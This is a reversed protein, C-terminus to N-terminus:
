RGIRDTDDATAGSGDSGGADVTGGEEKGGGTVAPEVEEAAAPEGQPPHLRVEGTGSHVYCQEASVPLADVAEAIATDRRVGSTRIQGLMWVGPLMAGRPRLLCHSRLQVTSPACGDGNAPDTLRAHTLDCRLLLKDWSADGGDILTISRANQGAPM